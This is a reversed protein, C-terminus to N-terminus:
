IQSYDTDRRRSAPSHTACYLTKKDRRNRRNMPLLEGCIKCRKAPPDPALGARRYHLKLGRAADEPSIPVPVLDKM